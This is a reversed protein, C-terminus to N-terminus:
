ENEGEGGRTGNEYRECLYAIDVLLETLAEAILISSWHSKVLRRALKVDFVGMQPVFVADFVPSTRCEPREVCVCLKDAITLPM